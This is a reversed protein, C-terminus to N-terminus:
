DEFQMPAVYEIDKDKIDKKYQQKLIVIKATSEFMSYWLLLLKLITIYSLYLFNYFNASLYIHM